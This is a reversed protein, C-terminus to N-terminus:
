ITRQATLVRRDKITVMTADIEVQGGAQILIKTKALLRLSGTAGDMQVETGNARDQVTLLKDKENFTFSFSETCLVGIDEPSDSSRAEVPVESENPNGEDDPSEGAWFAPAYVPTGDPDGNVFFLSVSAKVQPVMFLGQNKGGGGWPWAWASQPEVLGPVRVRVRGLGKPDNRDTVQGIWITPVNQM